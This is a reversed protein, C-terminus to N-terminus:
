LKALLYANSSNLKVFFHTITIYDAYYNLIIFQIFNMIFGKKILESLYNM